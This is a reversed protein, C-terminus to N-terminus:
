ESESLCQILKEGTKRDLAYNQLILQIDTNILWIWLSVILLDNSVMPCLAVGDVGKEGVRGKMQVVTEFEPEM